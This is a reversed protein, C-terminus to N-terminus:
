SDDAEALVDRRHQEIEHGDMEEIDSDSNM